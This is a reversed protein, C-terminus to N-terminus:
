DEKYRMKPKVCRAVIHIRESKDSVNEGSDADSAELFELGAQKIFQEM